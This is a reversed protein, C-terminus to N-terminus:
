LCQKIDTIIKFIGIEPELYLRNLDSIAHTVTPYLEALGLETVADLLIVYLDPTGSIRKAIAMIDASNARPNKICKVLEDYIQDGGLKKLNAIRGFSGNALKLTEDSINDDPMFHSCLARLQPITLPRMKEVRARSRVTPLVNALQHVVLLFLTKEPPEELMKLMANSASRTLEDVSDILVVRWEGSMSSMQMREILTRITHVSIQKADSKIKGDKDVNANINIIFFDGINGYVMKAIKYALTAKGIGRPGSLMWVPHVPHVDRGNWATIFDNMVEDHGVLTDNDMPSPFDYSNTTKRPAM